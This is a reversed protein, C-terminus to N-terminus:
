IGRYFNQIETMELITPINRPINLSPVEEEVKMILLTDRNHGMMILTGHKRGMMTNLTPPEQEVETTNLTHLRHVAKTTLIPIM